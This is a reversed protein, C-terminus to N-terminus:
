YLDDLSVAVTGSFDSVEPRGEEIRDSYIKFATIRTDEWLCIGQISEGKRVIKQLDEFLEGHYKLETKSSLPGWKTYTYYKDNEYKEEFWAPPNYIEETIIVSRYGM